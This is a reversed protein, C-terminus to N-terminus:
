GMYVKPPRPMKDRINAAWPFNPGEWTDIVRTIAVFLQTPRELDPDRLLSKVYVERREDSMLHNGFMLSMHDLLMTLTGLESPTLDTIELM